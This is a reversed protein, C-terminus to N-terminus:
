GNKKRRFYERKRTTAIKIEQPPTKQTKKQFASAAVILAAGDFFCLLRFINRNQRVRIEWLDDTNVMKQFLHNPNLDTEIFELVALIAKQVAADQKRIFKEVPCAGSETEYLIIKRKM